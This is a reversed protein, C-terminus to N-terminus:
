FSSLSSFPLKLKSRGSSSRVLKMAALVYWPLLSDHMISRDARFFTSAHSLSQSHHPFLALTSISLSLRAKVLTWPIINPCCLFFRSRTSFSFCLSCTWTTRSKEEIRSVSDFPPTTIEVNLHGCHEPGRSSGSVPFCVVQLYQPADIFGTSMKSLILFM